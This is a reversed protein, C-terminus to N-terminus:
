LCDWVADGVGLAQWVYGFRLFVPGRGKSLQFRCTYDKWLRDFLDGNHDLNEILVRINVEGNLAASM